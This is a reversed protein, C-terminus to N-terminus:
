IKLGCYVSRSRRLGFSSSGASPRCNRECEYGVIGFAESGAVAATGDKGSRGFGMVGGPRGGAMIAERFAGCLGLRLVATRRHPADPVSRREVLRRVSRFVVHAMGNTRVFTGRGDERVPYELWLIECGTTRGGCIRDGARVDFSRCNWHIIAGNGCPTM